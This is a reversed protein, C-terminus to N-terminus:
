QLQTIGDDFVSMVGELDNGDYFYTYKSLLDHLALEDELRQLRAELDNPKKVPLHAIAHLLGWMSKQLITFKSDSM